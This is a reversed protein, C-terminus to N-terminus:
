FPPIEDLLQALGLDHLAQPYPTSEFAGVPRGPRPGRSTVQPPAGRRNADQASLDLGHQLRDLITDDVADTLHAPVKQAPVLLQRPGIKHALLTISGDPSRQYRAGSPTHWTLDGSDTRSLSWGPTHKLRHHAQCLSTLNSLSTAGGEAWPQIHDTDCRAAPTTCGPFTCSGDRAQVLERLAVPPRYHTRGVDVVTGSVPDTVLRRWVGGAALARATAAPVPMTSIGITAEAAPAAGAVAEGHPLPCHGGVVTTPASSGSRSPTDAPGATPASRGGATPAEPVSLGGAAASQRGGAGTPRAATDGAAPRSDGAAYGSPPDDGNPDADDPLLQELPVTVDVNITIGPPPFVADVGSPTWWPRAPEVLSSLGALLGDLPVGDPLLQATAPAPPGGSAAAPEPTTFPPRCAAYQSSQLTRLTMGVVADARLQAPSREDGAARASAAVADLTADLLFADLSPLLLRMEHVGEGAQRPRTVHRRAQNRKRRSDADDPDLAALARDIDKALQSTTRRSARPLVQEQVARAVRADADELRQVVLATKGTDLLGARHLTETAAFEPQLLAEGRDLIRCASQRTTGLRCAIEGGTTFRREEKTVLCELRGDPGWPAAGRNMEPTRALCAAAAGECWSAWAVLRHCAAVLESLVQAGLAALRDIGTGEGWDVGRQASTQALARDAPSTITNFLAETDPTGLIEALEAIGVADATAADAASATDAACATHATTAAPEAGANAATEGAASRAADGNPTAAVLIDALMGEVLSALGAGAPVEALHAILATPEQLVGPGATYAQEAGPWSAAEGYSADWAVSAM